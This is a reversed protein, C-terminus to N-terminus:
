PCSGASKYPVTVNSGAFTSNLFTDLQAYNGSLEACVRYNGYPVGPYALKGTSGVTIQTYKEACGPDISTFVEKVNSNGAVPFTGYGPVGSAQTINISPQRLILNATAGPLPTGTVPAQGYRTPDGSACGGAWAAYGTTFPFVTMDFVSQTSGGANFTLTGAPLGSNSITVAKAPSAPTGSTGPVATNVTAHLTAAQAYQHPVVVTGGATVSTPLSVANVGAPDVWGPKSFTVTYTGQDVLGFVACGSSNTAVTMNVSSGAISVNQGVVPNSAQDTLQVSLNGKTTAISGPPPTLLSDLQVPRGLQPSTVKSTIKLYDGTTDDVATFCSTTDSSDRVWIVKSYRSYPVGGVSVPTTATYGVLQSVPMARLREQDQQALTSAQARVENQGSIAAPGDIGAFVGAAVIALLAASVMVEILAFGRQARLSRRTGTM